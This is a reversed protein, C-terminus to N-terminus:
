YDDDFEAETWDKSPSKVTWGYNQDEFSRLVVKSISYPANPPMVLRVLLNDGAEVISHTFCTGLTELTELTQKGQKMPWLLPNTFCGVYNEGRVKIEIRSNEVYINNSPNEAVNKVSLKILMKQDNATNLMTLPTPHSWSQDLSSEKYLGHYTTGDDLSVQYNYITIKTKDDVHAKVSKEKEKDIEFNSCDQHDRMHLVFKQSKFVFKETKCCRAGDNCLELRGEVGSSTDSSSRLTLTASYLNKPSVELWPVHKPEPEPGDSPTLFIAILIVLLVLGASVLGLLIKRGKSCAPFGSSSGAAESPGMLPKTKESSTELEM